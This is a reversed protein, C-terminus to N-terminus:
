RHAQNAASIMNAEHGDMSASLDLVLITDSPRAVYGEISKASAITSLAVLFNSKDELALGERIEDSTAEDVDNMYDDVTAFVSKDSWVAGAATTNIVGNEGLFVPKWTDVTTSDALKTINSNNIKQTVGKTESALAAPVTGFNCLVLLIGMFLSLVREFRKNM